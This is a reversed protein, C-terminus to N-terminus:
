ELMGRQRAIEILEVRTGACLKERLSSVHFFATRPTIALREAIGTDRCGAALLRLVELERESVAAARGPKRVQRSTRGAADRVLSRMQATRLPKLAAGRIAPEAAHAREHGPGWGSLIVVGVPRWAARMARAIEVGSEWAPPELVVVDPRLEYTLRVATGWDTADAVVRIAPDGELVRTATKNWEADPDALVVRIQEHDGPSRL